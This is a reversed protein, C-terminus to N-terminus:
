VNVELYGSYLYNSEGRDVGTATNDETQIKSVISNSSRIVNGTSTLDGASELTQPTDTASGAGSFAWQIVVDATSANSVILQDTLADAGIIDTSTTEVSTVSSIAASPRFLHFNVAMGAGGSNFGIGGSYGATDLSNGQTTGDLIRFACLYAPRYTVNSGDDKENIPPVFVDYTEGARGDIGTYGTGFDTINVSSQERTQAQTFLMIDGIQPDFTGTTVADTDSFLESFGVGSSASRTLTWTGRAEVNFSQFVLRVDTGDKVFLKKVDRVDSGDKMFLKSIDRINTGDKIFLGPM